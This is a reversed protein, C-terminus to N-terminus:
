AFTSLGCLCVRGPALRTRRPLEQESRRESLAIVHDVEAATGIFDITMDYVLLLCVASARRLLYLRDLPDVRVCLRCIRCRSHNFFGAIDWFTGSEFFNRPGPKPSFQESKGAVVFMTSPLCM